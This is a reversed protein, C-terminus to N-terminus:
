PLVVTDILHVVGNSAIIDTAIVQANNIFVNGGEVKIELEKGNLTSLKMPKVDKALVGAGAHVHYTLIAVLQEKNEPKLLTEVTGEPLKAFADNTPAFVTFPGPGKLAEVLGGAKVAAVLTSLQPAGLATDIIDKKDTTAPKGGYQALASAPSFTYTALGATFAAALALSAVTRLM